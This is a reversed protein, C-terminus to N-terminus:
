LSPKVHNTSDHNSDPDNNSDSDNITAKAIVKHKGEAQEKDLKCGQPKHINFTMYHEYWDWTKNDTTLRGSKQGVM